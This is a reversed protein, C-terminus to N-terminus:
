QLSNKRCKQIIGRKQQPYDAICNQGRTKMEQGSEEEKKIWAQSKQWRGLVEVSLKPSSYIESNWNDREESEEKGRAKAWQSTTLKNSFTSNSTDSNKHVGRSWLWIWDLVLRSLRVKQSTKFNGTDKMESKQSRKGADKWMSKVLRGARQIDMKM